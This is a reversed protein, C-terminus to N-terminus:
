KKEVAKKNIADEAKKNAARKASEEETDKPEKSYKKEYAAKIAARKSALGKKRRNSRKGENMTEIYLKMDKLLDEDSM